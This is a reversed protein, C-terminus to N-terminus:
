NIKSGISEQVLQSLYGNFDLRFMFGKTELMSMVHFLYSVQSFFEKRVADLEEPPIVLPIKDSVANINQDVTILSSLSTFSSMVSQHDIDDRPNEGMFKVNAERFSSSFIDEAKRQKEQYESQSLQYHQDLYLLQCLSIFRLCVQLIRDFSEQINVNDIFSMKSVNSLFIRHTKLVIQMDVAENVTKLLESFESDIVDM